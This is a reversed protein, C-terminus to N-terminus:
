ETRKAFKRRGDASFHAGFDKNLLAETRVTQPSLGANDHQYRDFFLDSDIPGPPLRTIKVEFL